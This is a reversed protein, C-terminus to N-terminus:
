KRTRKVVVLNPGGGEITLFLEYYTPKGRDWPQSFCEINISPIELM